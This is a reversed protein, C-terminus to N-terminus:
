GWFGTPNTFGTTTTFGTSRSFGTILVTPPAQFHLNMRLNVPHSAWGQGKVELTNAWLFLRSTTAM